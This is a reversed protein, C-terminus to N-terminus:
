VSMDMTPGFLNWDDQPQSKVTMDDYVDEVEAEKKAESLWTQAKAIKEKERQLDLRRRQREPDEAMLECCREAMDYDDIHLEQQIENILQNRCKAFLKTHVSQCITDVFRSNAIDYYGRTAAMMKVEQLFNDPGLMAAIDATKQSINKCENQEGKVHKNIEQYLELRGKNRAAMLIDFANKTAQDLTVRDMTFPKTYEMDYVEEAWSTHDQQLKQLYQELIRRIERYLATRQYQAFVLDVQEFLQSKVLDHTKELFALMPAKWHELSRQNLIEIAKPDIQDPLCGRSATENCARIEDWTFKKVDLLHKAFAQIRGQEPTTKRKPVPTGRHSSAKRKQPTVMTVEIDSDANEQISREKAEQEDKSLVNVTPRTKSLIERFDSALHIWLRLLPYNESGGDIHAQVSEKFQNLMQCLIFPSSASPPDPLTQLESDISRSKAEIQEMVKPLCKQIQDLLLSSLATQLKRTGFKEQYVSLDDTAWPQSAFFADEELRAQTHKISPDPNNRIVYYGHGLKFKDGDLIEVWQKYSEGTQIRDPKTLVGLTRAKAGKVERMLRAAASNTADNTMPLTLLVICNEQTIYDKVLNEVMTVLYKDKEHEAQSIVGPLDYFSLNPFAPASIDLRVVNPSFKVQCYDEDTEVNQGPVYESSPRGPNLIALQAWKIALEVDDRNSLTIFLEDEQNQEHWPGFPHSKKTVKDVRHNWDYMYKRSLYVRCTWPQGPDSESLNIEMPCRTCTGAARPVKIESMGEILSSKGASQDGIVCIRPLAIKSSADEIGIHRLDQIKKVLTKMDRTIINISDNKLTPLGSM